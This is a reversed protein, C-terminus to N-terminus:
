IPYTGQAGATGDAGAAGGVRQGGCWRIPDDGEDVLGEVDAVEEGDDRM